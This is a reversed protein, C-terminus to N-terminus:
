FTLNLDKIDVARESVPVSEIVTRNNSVFKHLRLGGNSCLTQADRILNVAECETQVSTLGDDVYFDNQVFSSAQPLAEAQSRALHKLGYNACGPSSAAGFLHKRMRYETPESNTDGNEWWLFRLYDRDPECVFFQHFMKEIDCMIAVPFRRFRLLVGALGNTLDPGSLLHDNLCTNRYRASCDFVVRLKDPKKPHFVGHHPIYWHSGSSDNLPVTEADGRDIMEKMFVTYCEHYCKDRNLKRKLHNLRILALAKNNPMIPRDKFPLAMELHSDNRQIISATMNELFCIDQQSVKIDDNSDHAFDDELAKVINKPCLAPLEKVHTRHSQCKVTDSELASEAYGVVSWGLSTKVAYPENGKGTVIHQPALAQPCNYGILLGVDCSQLPAIEESM